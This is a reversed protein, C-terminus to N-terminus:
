ETASPAAPAKPVETVLQGPYKEQLKIFREGLKQFDYDGAEAIRRRAAHVEEVIEDTM